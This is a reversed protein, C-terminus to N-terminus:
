SVSGVARGRHGARETEEQKKRSRVARALLLYSSAVWVALAICNPWHFCPEESDNRFSAAINEEACGGIVFLRKLNNTSFSGAPLFQIHGDFFCAHAGAPTEYHFYGNDHVHPCRVVPEPGSHADNEFDDLSVDRPATWPVGSNDEILLVTDEAHARLAPDNLSTKKDRRWAASKGTVAVYNTATPDRALAGAQTPCQFVDPRMALLAANKPGDWPQKFDYRSYIDTRGLDPLILVRWSHMARGKADFVAPPPLCGCRKEYSELALAIQKMNNTCVIRRVAERCSSVAPLLLGVLVLLSTVIVAVRIWRPWQSKDLAVYGAVALLVVFVLIGGTGFVAMSSGLVVFLLFMTSLRFQM